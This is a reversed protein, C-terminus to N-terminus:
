ARASASRRAATLRRAALAAVYALALACTVSAGAALRAHYSAYIGVLSAGVAIATAALMMSTLRRTVLRAAAAPGVLMAVVLLNGLDEVAVLTALALLLGLAVDVAGPRRGLAAANLRDLGVVVLSPRLLALSILVVAVIAATLALDGDSVGLVDGFLIGDLGAPTEPALGLLVGLGLLTTIVVSVAVDSGLRPVRGVAAIALTAVLLGAAGGIVLPVGALAAIVLGPLMGHALSEASYSLRWLVIWSGLSGSVVGLLLLEALARAVVTSRLPEVLWDIM